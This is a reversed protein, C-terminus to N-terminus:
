LNRLEFHLIELHGQINVNCYCFQPPRGSICTEQKYTKLKFDKLTEFKQKLNM